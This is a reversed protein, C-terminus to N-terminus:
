TDNCHFYVVPMPCLFPISNSLLLRYWLCLFVATHTGSAYLNLQFLFVTQVVQAPIQNSLTRDYLKLIFDGKCMM